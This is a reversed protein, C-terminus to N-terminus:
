DTTDKVVEREYAFRREQSQDSLHDFKVLVAIFTRPPHQANFTHENLPDCL